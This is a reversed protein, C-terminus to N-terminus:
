KTSEKVKFECDVASYSLTSCFKDLEQTKQMLCM